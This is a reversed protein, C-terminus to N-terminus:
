EDLKKQLTLNLYNLKDDIMAHTIKSEESIKFYRYAENVKIDLNEIQSKIMEFNKNINENGNSSLTMNNRLSLIEDEFSKNREDLFEFKKITKKEFTKFQLFLNEGDNISNGSQDIHKGKNKFYPNSNLEENM